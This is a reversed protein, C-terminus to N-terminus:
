VYTAGNAVAATLENSIRQKNKSVTVYQGIFSGDEDFRGSFHIYTNTWIWAGTWTLAWTLELDFGPLPVFFQVSDLDLGQM